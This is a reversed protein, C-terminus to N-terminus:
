PSAAYRKSSCFCGYIRWQPHIFPQMIVHKSGITRAPDTNPVGASAGVHHERKPQICMERAAMKPLGIDFVVMTDLTGLHDHKKIIDPNFAQHHHNTIILFIIIIINIIHLAKSRVREQKM